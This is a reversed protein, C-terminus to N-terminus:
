EFHVITDEATGFLVPESDMDETGRDLVAGASALCYFLAWLDVELIGPGRGDNRTISTLDGAPCYELFMTVVVGGGVVGEVATADRYQRVIHISKATNLIDMYQSEVLPSASYDHTQKIAIQKVTKIENGEYEWLRVVGNSGRGLLRRPKWGLGLVAEFNPEKGNILFGDM